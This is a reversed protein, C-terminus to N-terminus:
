VILCVFFFGSRKVHSHPNSASFTVPNLNRPVRVRCPKEQAWKLAGLQCFAESLVWGEMTLCLEALTKGILSFPAKQLRGAGKVYIGLKMIAALAQSFWARSVTDSFSIPSQCRAAQVWFIGRHIASMSLRIWTVATMLGTLVALPRAMPLCGNLGM